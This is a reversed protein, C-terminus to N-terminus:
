IPAWLLLWLLRGPIKLKLYLFLNRLERSWPRSASIKAIVVKLMTMNGLQKLLRAALKLLM